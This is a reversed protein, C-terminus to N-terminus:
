RKRLVLTPQESEPVAEQTYETGHEALFERVALTEGPWDLCNWQDLIFIGGHSLREHMLFLIDRTPRYLDVDCYLLSYSLHQNKDLFGPLTESIDGKIVSVYTELGQSKIVENVQQHDAAYDGRFQEAVDKDEITQLGEFSDFAHIRKFGNPAYTQLLHGLFILNAGRYCGFEIIHGPVDLVSRFLNHIAFYKATTSRSCFLPWEYVNAIPTFSVQDGKTWLNGVMVGKKEDSM